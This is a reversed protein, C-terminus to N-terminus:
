GPFSERKELRAAYDYFRTMDYLPPGHGFLITSPRLDVLHRVSRRAQAFDICFIRPPTKLRVKFTIFNLNVLLDGVIAVRDSERFFIVHGPTHGPTHVVRWEGVQDGERLVNAVPYPPGSWIWHGVTLFLNHPVMRERGEMAPVDAEHCALPVGFRECVASAIGQHDPHCHTLAMRRVTHGRLQRLLWYRDWRTCGDILLDGALYVNFLDRPYGDLLWVGAAVERM